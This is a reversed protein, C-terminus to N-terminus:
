WNQVFYILGHDSICTLTDDDQLIAALPFNLMGWHEHCSIKWSLFFFNLSCPLILNFRILLLMGQPVQTAWATSRGVQAWTTIEYNTLELGADPGVSVTRPRSPTREREWRERGRELKHKRESEFYIFLSLFFFWAKMVDAKWCFRFM